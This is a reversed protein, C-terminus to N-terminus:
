SKISHVCLSRYVVLFSSSYVHPFSTKGLIREGDTVVIADIDDQPYNDLIQRIKGKDNISLYLGRPTCRSIHSWKQCAEGVTPTYVFPMCEETHHTLASYYLTEDTDQITHLFIYKEIPSYVM